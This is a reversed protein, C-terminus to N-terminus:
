AINAVDYANLKIVIKNSKSEVKTASVNVVLGDDIGLHNFVVDETIKIANSVDICRKSITGKATIVGKIYFVYEANIYRNGSNVHDVFPKHTKIKPMLINHLKIEFDKYSASKIMRASKGMVFPRWAQNFSMPKLDPLELVLEM